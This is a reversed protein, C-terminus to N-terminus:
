RSNKRRREETHYKADDEAQMDYFRNRKIIYYTLFGIGIIGGLFALCVLFSVTSGVPSDARSSLTKFELFAYLIIDDISTALIMIPFNLMMVVRGREVAFRLIEFDLVLLVQELSFLVIGAAIFILLTMLNDWYNALFSEQLGHKSYIEDLSAYDKM